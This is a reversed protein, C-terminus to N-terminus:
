TSRPAPQAGGGSILMDAEAYVAVLAGDPVKVTAYPGGLDVAANSPRRSRAARVVGQDPQDQVPRGREARHGADEGRATRHRRLAGHEKRAAGNGDRRASRGAGGDRGGDGALAAAPASRRIRSMQSKRRRPQSEGAIRGVRTWPALKPGGTTRAPTRLAALSVPSSSRCGDRTCARSRASSTRSGTRCGSSSPPGARPSRSPRGDREVGALLLEDVGAAPDLAELAAGGLAGLGPLLTSGPAPSSTPGSGSGTVPGIRPAHGVAGQDGLLVRRDAALRHELAHHHAADRDPRHRHARGLALDLDGRLREDGPRLPVPHQSQRHDAADDGEALRQLDAELRERDGGVGLELRPPRLLDAAQHPAQRDEERQHQRDPQEEHMGTPAVLRILSSSPEANRNQSTSPTRRVAIKM